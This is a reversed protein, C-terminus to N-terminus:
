NMAFQDQRQKDDRIFVKAFETLHDSAHYFDLIFETQKTVGGLTDILCDALGNGSDTLCVTLDADAVGVSECESRLQRSMEQLSMLGALYRTDWIRQRRKEGTPQPNFVVGVYPM